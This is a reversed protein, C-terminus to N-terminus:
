RNLRVTRRIGDASQLLYVGKNYGATKLSTEFASGDVRVSGLVKGMLDFVRYNKSAANMAYSRIIGVSSDPPTIPDDPIAFTIHDIDMWSGTVTFRLVHEGETLNVGSAATVSNFDDYNDKGENKPVAISETIDKGDMSLKFSSTNNASAVSAFVDYKGTEAVKVTYELWEGEQNYGVVVKDGKKYLDVGTDKRYGSDGHNESDNDKYSDNGSGVGPIDFDEAQIRGPITAAVGKFPQQPMPEVPARNMHELMVKAYRKGFEIYGARNFHYSDGASGLGSSSVPWANDMVKTIRQVQSTSFGRCCGDERMEGALLPVTDSSLGLDTLMDDRIKKLDEAWHNNNWDSEGQHVIIGKIVGDKQAIKALDIIRKYLNSDYAKAWNIIWNEKQRDPDELYAQWNDKDFLKLATGGVAVSIIGVTVDPLSDVLTRGFYDAVSISPPNDCNALQSTADTWVGMTRGKAPCDMSPLLKFRPYPKTEPEAAGAAGAMNSQGFAIYIHFNPDPAASALTAAAALSLILKKMNTGM